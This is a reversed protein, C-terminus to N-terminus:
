LRVVFLPGIPSTSFIYHTENEHLCISNDACFEKLPVWSSNKHVSEKKRRAIGDTKITWLLNRHFTTYNSLM